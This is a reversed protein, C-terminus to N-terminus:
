AKEDMVIQSENRRNEVCHKIKKILQVLFLYNEFDKFMSLQSKCQPALSFKFFHM